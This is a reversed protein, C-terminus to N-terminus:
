TNKEIIYLADKLGELRASEYRYDATSKNSKVESRYIENELRTKVTEIKKKLAKEKRTPTM